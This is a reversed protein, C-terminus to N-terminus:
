TLFERLVERLDRLQEDRKQRSLSRDRNITFTRVGPAVLDGINENAWKGNFVILRPRLANIWQGLHSRCNEIAGKKPKGDGATRCRVVNIFAVQEYNIGQLYKRYMAFNPLSTAMQDHLQELTKEDSVQRLAAIYPEDHHGTREKRYGPNQGIFLIGAYRRGVWGPQPVNEKRDRLVDSVPCRECRLVSTFLEVLASDRKLGIAM